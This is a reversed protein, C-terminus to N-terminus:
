FILFNNKITGSLMFGVIKFGAKILTAKSAIPGMIKIFAIFPAYSM